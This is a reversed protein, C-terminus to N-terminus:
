TASRLAAADLVFSHRGYRICDLDALHRGREFRPKLDYDDHLTFPYKEDTPDISLLRSLSVDCGNHPKLEHLGGDKMVLKVSKKDKLFAALRTLETYAPPAAGRKHQELALLQELYKGYFVRMPTTQVEADRFGSKYGIHKKNVLDYLCITHDVEYGIIGDIVRELVLNTHHRPEPVHGATYWVQPTDRRDCIYFDRDRIHEELYDALEADAMAKYVDELYAYLGACPHEGDDLRIRSDEDAFPTYYSADDEVMLGKFEFKEGGYERRVYLTVKGNHITYLKEEM